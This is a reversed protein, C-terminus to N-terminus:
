SFEFCSSCFLGPRPVTWPTEPQKRPHRRRPYRVLAENQPAFGVYLMFAHRQDKTITGYPNRAGVKFPNGWKTGRGVYVTNEPMRWGKVRQRQIRKPESM